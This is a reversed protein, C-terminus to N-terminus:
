FKTARDGGYLGRRWCEYAEEPAIGKEEAIRDVERLIMKAAFIRREPDLDEMKRKDTLEFARM